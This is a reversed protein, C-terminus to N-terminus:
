GGTCARVIAFVILLLVLPSRLVWRVVPSTSASEAEPVDDVVVDMPADSRM